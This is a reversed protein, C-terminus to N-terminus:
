PGKGERLGGEAIAAPTDGQDPAATATATVDFAGVGIAGIIQTAYSDQATVTVEARTASVTGDFGTAALWARAAGEAAPPNLRVIGSQRFYSVDIEDAGARAAESAAVTVSVKAAAAGGGDIALGIAGLLAIFIAVAFATAMGADRRVPRGLLRPSLQGADGTRM